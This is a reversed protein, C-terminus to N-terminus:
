DETLLNRELALTERIRADVQQVVVSRITNLHQEAACWATAVDRGRWKNTWLELGWMDAWADAHQGSILWYLGTMEGATSGIIARDNVNAVHTEVIGRGIEAFIASARAIDAIGEVALAQMGALARSLEGPTSPVSHSLAIDRLEAEASFAQKEFHALLLPRVSHLAYSREKLLAGANPPIAIKTGVELAADISEIELHANSPIKLLARWSSLHL